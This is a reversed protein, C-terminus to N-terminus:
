VAARWLRRGLGPLVLPGWAPVWGLRGAVGLPWPRGSVGCRWPAGVPVWPLWRLGHFLVGRAVLDVFEYTVKAHLVPAPWSMAVCLELMVRERTGYTSAMIPFGATAVVVAVSSSCAVEPTSLRYVLPM